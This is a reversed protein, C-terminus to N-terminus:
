RTDAGVRRLKQRARSVQGENSGTIRGSTVRVWHCPEPSRKPVGPKCDSYLFPDVTRLPLGEFTEGLYLADPSARRLEVAVAPEIEVRPASHWQLYFLTLAAGAVLFSVLQRKRHGRLITV